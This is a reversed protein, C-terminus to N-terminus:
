HGQEGHLALMASWPLRALDTTIIQWVAGPDVQGDAPVLHQHLPPRLPRPREERGFTGNESQPRDSDNYGRQRYKRDGEM